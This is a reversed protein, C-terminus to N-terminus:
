SNEFRVPTSGFTITDGNVLIRGTVVREGNVKTGNTSGRDTVMWGGATRRIEAHIRSVNNDDIVIHCDSQRGITALDGSLSIREGSGLVITAASVATATIATEGTVSPPVVPPAPEPTPDVTPAIRCTGRKVSADVALRIEVEGSLTYGEITAHHVVAQQLEDLLAGEFTSLEAADDPHLTILFNPELESGTGLDDFQADLQALLARGISIPRIGGRRARQLV